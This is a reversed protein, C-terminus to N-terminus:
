IGGRSPLREGEYFSFHIHKCSFLASLSVTLASGTQASHTLNKKPTKNSAFRKRACVYYDQFLPRLLTHVPKSRESETTPIFAVTLYIVLLVTHYMNATVANLNEKASVKLCFSEFLLANIKWTCLLHLIVSCQHVDTDEDTLPESMSGNMLTNLDSMQGTPEQCKFGPGWNSFSIWM